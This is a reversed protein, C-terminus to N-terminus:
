SGRTQTRSPSFVRETRTLSAHLSKPLTPVSPLGQTWVHLYQDDEWLDGTFWNEINRLDSRRGYETKSNWTQFARRNCVRSLRKRAGSFTQQSVVSRRMNRTKCAM